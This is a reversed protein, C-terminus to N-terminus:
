SFCVWAWVAGQGLDAYYSQVEDFQEPKCATLGSMMCRKVYRGMTHLSWISGGVRRGSPQLFHGMQVVTCANFPSWGDDVKGGGRLTHGLVPSSQVPSAPVRLPLPGSALNDWPRSGDWRRSVTHMAGTANKITAPILPAHLQVALCSCKVCVRMCKQMRPGSATSCRPTAASEPKTLEEQLLSPHTLLM